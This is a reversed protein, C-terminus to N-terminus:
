STKGVYMCVYMCYEVEGDVDLLALARGLAEFRSKESTLAYRAVIATEVVHLSRGVVRVQRHIVECNAHLYADEALIYKNIVAVLERAPVYM